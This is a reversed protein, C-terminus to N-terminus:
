STKLARWREDEGCLNQVADWKTNVNVHKERLLAIFRKKQEDSASLLEDLENDKKNLRELRRMEDM